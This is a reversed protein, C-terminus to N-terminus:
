RWESPANGEEERIKEILYEEMRPSLNGALKRENLIDRSSKFGGSQKLWRAPDRLSPRLNGSDGTAQQSTASPSRGVAIGQDRREAYVDRVEAESPEDAGAGFDEREQPSRFATDSVGDARLRARKRQKAIGLCLAWEFPETGPGVLDYAASAREREEREQRQEDLPLLGQNLRQEQAIQREAERMFLAFHMPVPIEDTQTRILTIARHLRGLPEHGHARKIEQAWQKFDTIQRGPKQFGIVREMEREFDDNGPPADFNPRNDM